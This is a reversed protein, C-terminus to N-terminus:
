DYGLKIFFVQQLFDLINKLALFLAVVEDREMENRQPNRIVELGPIM